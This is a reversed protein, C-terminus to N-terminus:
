EYFHGCIILMREGRFLWISHSFINVVFSKFGLVSSFKIILTFPKEKEDEMVMLLLLADDDGVM